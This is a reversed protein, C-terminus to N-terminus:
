DAEQYEQLIEEADQTAKEIDGTCNLLGVKTKQKVACRAFSASLEGENECATEIAQRTERNSAGGSLKHIHAMVSRCEAETLEDDDDIDKSHDKRPFLEPSTAASSYEDEGVLHDQVPLSTPPLAREQPTITSATSQAEEPGGSLLKVTGVVGLLVAAFVALQVNSNKM